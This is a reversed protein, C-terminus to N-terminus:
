DKKSPSNWHLWQKNKYRQEIYIIHWWKKGALFGCVAGAGFFLATLLAHIMFWADWSLGFGFTAFDRVLLGIYWVEILAHLLFQILIGLTIFSVIYVTKKM